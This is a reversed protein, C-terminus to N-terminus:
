FTIQIMLTCKLNFFDFAKGSSLLQKKNLSERFIYFKENVDTKKCREQHGGQFVEHDFFEQWSIRRKPNPQLLGRLLEKIKECVFSLGQLNLNDGSKKLVKKRLEGISLAFFPPKGVLLEYFLVGISWLDSKNNYDGGAMIEPAMNLPTGVTTSTMKTVVKASGFDGLVITDNKIFVNELKLDRHIIKKSRLERFGEMIQRIILIAEPESFRRIKNQRMYKNLDGKECLDLVLYFNRGTEFSRHMYMLNRHRLTNMISTERKLQRLMLPNDKFKTKPIVKIAFPEKTEIHSARYVTGFQGEGIIKELLFNDVRKIGKMKNIIEM